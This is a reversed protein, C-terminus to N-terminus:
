RDYSNIFNYLGYISMYECLIDPQIEPAYMAIDYIDTVNELELVIDDSTGNNINYM